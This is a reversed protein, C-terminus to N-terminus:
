QGPQRPLAVGVGEWIIMKINLISCPIRPPFFLTLESVSVQNFFSLGNFANAFDPQEQLGPTYCEFRDTGHVTHIHHSGSTELVSIRCLGEAGHLM